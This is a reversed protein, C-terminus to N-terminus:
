QKGEEMLTRYESVSDIIEEFGGQERACEEAYDLFALGQETNGLVYSNLAYYYNAHPNDPEMDLAKGLYYAAQVYKDTEYCTYGAMYMFYPEFPYDYAADQATDCIQSNVKGSYQFLRARLLMEYCEEDKEKIQALTAAANYYDEQALLIKGQLLPKESSYSLKSLATKAEDYKGEDILTEVKEIAEADPAPHTEQYEEIKEQDLVAADGFAPLSPAGFLAGVILATASVCLCVHPMKGSLRNGFLIIGTLATVSLLLSIVGFVTFGNILLLVFIIATFMVSLKKIM